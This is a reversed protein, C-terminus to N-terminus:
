KGSDRRVVRNMASLADEPTTGPVETQIFSVVKPTNYQLEFVARIAANEVAINIQPQAM